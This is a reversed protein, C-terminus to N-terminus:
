TSKPLVEMYIRLARLAFPFLLREGAQSGLVGPFSAAECSGPARPGPSVRLLVQGLVRARFVKGLARAIVTAKHPVASSLGFQEAANLREATIVFHSPVDQLLPPM